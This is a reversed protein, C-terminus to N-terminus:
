ADFHPMAWLYRERKGSLQGPNLDQSQGKEISSLDHVTILDFGDLPLAPIECLLWYCSGLSPEVFIHKEKSSQM